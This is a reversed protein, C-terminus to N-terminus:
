KKLLLENNDENILQSDLGELYEIKSKIFNIKVQYHKKNLIDALNYHLQNFRLQGRLHYLENTHTGHILDYKERELEQIDDLDQYARKLDRPGAAIALERDKMLFEIRKNMENIQEEKNM